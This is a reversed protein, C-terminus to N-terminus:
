HKGWVYSNWIREHFYYLFAKILNILVGSNISFSLDESYAFIVAVTIITATLKWTITKVLSRIKTDFHKKRKIRTEWKILLWVREHLYYFLTKVLNANISAILIFDGYPHLKSLVGFTVILAIIRWSITKSITRYHFEM